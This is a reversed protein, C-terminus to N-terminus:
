SFEFGLEGRQLFALLDDEIAGSRLFESSGTLCCFVICEAIEISFSQCAPHCGPLLRTIGQGFFFLFMQVRSDLMTVELRLLIPRMDERKIVFL